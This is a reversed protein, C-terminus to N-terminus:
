FSRSLRLLMSMYRLPPLLSTTVPTREELCRGPPCSETVWRRGATPMSAANVENADMTFDYRQRGQARMATRFTVASFSIGRVLMSRLWSPSWRLSSFLCRGETNMKSTESCVESWRHKNRGVGDKGKKVPWARWQVAGSISIDLRLWPTLHATGHEGHVCCACISRSLVAHGGSRAVCESSACGYRTSQIDPSAGARSASRRTLQDM